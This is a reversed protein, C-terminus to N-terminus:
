PTAIPSPPTVPTTPASAPAQAEDETADSELPRSTKRFFSEVLGRRGPFLAKLRRRDGGLARRDVGPAGRRQGRHCGADDDGGGPAARGARTKRCFRRALRRPAHGGPRHPAPTQRHPGLHHRHRPRPLGRPRNSPGQRRPGSSPRSDIGSRQRPQDRSRAMSGPPGARGPTRVAGAGADQASGQAPRRAVDQAGRGNRAAVHPHSRHSRDAITEFRRANRPACCRWRAPRSLQQTCMSLNREGVAPL